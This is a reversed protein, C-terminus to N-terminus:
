ADPQGAIVEDLQRHFHAIAGEFRGFEFHTRPNAELNRQIATIIARDEKGGKTAFNEEQDLREEATASTDYHDSLTYTAHRTVGPGRPELVVLARRGPQTAVIANPFLQYAYTLVGDANREAEPKDRLGVINRYPFTVRNHRGFQEIVNVNDFQIPYFTEPHTSRIHYGELFGEVAIKWNTAVDFEDYKVFSFGDEYLPPLADLEAIMEDTPPRQSVFVAGQREFTPLPVLGGQTKDFGPFGHEHPIGKLDGELSYTWGHYPCVLAKACGTSECAVQAGRHSCMNLFARAAGDHGRTVVIPTGAAERAVFAGPEAIAASPCFLIPRSRLMEMEAQFREPSRYNEVPERWV